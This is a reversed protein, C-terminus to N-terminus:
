KLFINRFDRHLKQYPSLIKGIKEFADNKGIDNKNFSKLTDILFDYENKKILNRCESFFKSSQLYQSSRSVTNPYRDSSFNEEKEEFKAKNEPSFNRSFTRSQNIKKERETEREMDPSNEREIKNREHINKYNFNLNDESKPSFNARNINMSRNNNKPSFEKNNEYNRKETQCKNPNLNDNNNEYVKEIFKNM